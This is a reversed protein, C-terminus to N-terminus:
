YLPAGPLPDVLALAKVGAAALLRAIEANAEADTNYEVLLDVKASIAAKANAVARAPDGANDYFVMEVPRMRPPLEVSRRVDLGTLGLGEVAVGPTEDLNALALRFRREAAKAKPPSLGCALLGALVDRRRLRTHRILLGTDMASVPGDGSPR